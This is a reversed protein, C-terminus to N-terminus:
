LREMGEARKVSGDSNVQKEEEVEELEEKEEEEEEVSDDADNNNNNNSNNNNNMTVTPQPPPTQAVQASGQHPHQSAKISTSFTCIECYRSDRLKSIKDTPEKM